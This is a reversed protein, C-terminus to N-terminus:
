GSAWVAQAGPATQHFNAPVAVRRNILEGKLNRIAIKMFGKGLLPRLSFCPSDFSFYRGYLPLAWGRKKMDDLYDVLNGMRHPRMRLEVRSIAEEISIGKKELLQETKNYSSVQNSPNRVAELPLAALRM